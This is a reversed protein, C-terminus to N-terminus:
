QSRAEGDGGQAYLNNFIQQAAVRPRRQFAHFEQNFASAFESILASLDRSPVDSTEPKSLLSQAVYFDNIADFAMGESAKAHLFDLDCLTGRLAEWMGGRAQNHPLESLKRLDALKQGDHAVHLPKSAFY